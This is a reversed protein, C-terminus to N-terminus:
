RKSVTGCSATAGVVRGLEADTLTRLTNRNLRLVCHREGSQTTEDTNM